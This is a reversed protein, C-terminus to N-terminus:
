TSPIAIYDRVVNGEKALNLASKKVIADIILLRIKELIHLFVDEM